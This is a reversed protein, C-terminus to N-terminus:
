KIHIGRPKMRKCGFEIYQGYKIKSGIKVTDGDITYTLSKRLWYLSFDNVAVGAFNNSARFHRFVSAVRSSNRMMRFWIM